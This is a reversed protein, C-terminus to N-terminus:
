YIINVSDGLNETGLAVNKSYAGGVLIRPGVLLVARVVTLNWNIRWMKNKHSQKLKMM